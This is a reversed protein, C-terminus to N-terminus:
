TAFSALLTATDPSLMDAPRSRPLPVGAPIPRADFDDDSALLTTDTNAALRIPQADAPATGAGGELQAMVQGASRSKHGGRGYFLSHNAHAAAPLVQAAAQDPNDAAARILRLAGTAGFIHAAYVEGDSVPRGLRKELYDRNENALEGAMLASLRPDNREALIAQRAAPDSVEQRGNAATAIEKAEAGLGYQAGYTKVMHLWTQQNFQFVGAASSNPARAAARFHSERQAVRLLYRFDTGTRASSEQLASQVQGRTVTAQLTTDNSIM